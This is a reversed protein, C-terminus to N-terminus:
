IQQNEMNKELFGILGEKGGSHNKKNLYFFYFLACVIFLMYSLIHTLVAYAAAVDESFGYLLVLVSIAITHYSGTGGPTPIAVGIASLSMMIWGMAFTMERTDQMGITYFGVYSNIAYLLMIAATLAFSLFYNRFGRLCSFGTVLMEFIYALRSALSESFKEALKVLVSYFRQKYRIILLILVIVSSLGLAALYLTAKLWPFSEYLDGNFILISIVLSLAFAIMDIVREVIVTGLMSTRSLGEWRGALVARSVEGLRPIVCNVGYGVMLAGFLNEVSVNPKVSQLMVKWRAARLYHSFINTVTFAAIWFLSARKLLAAVRNFDVGNLAVYLFAAALLFSFLVVTIEKLRTHKKGSTM